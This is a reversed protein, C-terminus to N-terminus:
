VCRALTGVLKHDSKAFTKIHGCAKCVINVARKTKSAYVVTEPNDCAKCLVYLEIFKYLAVRLENVSYHGNLGNKKVTGCGFSQSFHALLIHPPKDLSKAIVNLNTIVTKRREFKLELGAMQYRSDGLERPNINLM